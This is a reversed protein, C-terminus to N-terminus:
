SAPLLGSIPHQKDLIVSKTQGYYQDLRTRLEIGQM